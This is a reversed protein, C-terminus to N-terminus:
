LCYQTPFSSHVAWFLFVYPSHWDHIRMWEGEGVGSLFCQNLSNINLYLCCVCCWSRHKQDRWYILNQFGTLFTQVPGKQSLLIRLQWNQHASAMLLSSSTIKVCHIKWLLVWQPVTSKVCAGATPQQWRGLTNCQLRWLFRIHRITM